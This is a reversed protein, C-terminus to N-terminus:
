LPTIQSRQPTSIVFAETLLSLCTDTIDSPNKGQSLEDIFDAVSQTKPRFSFIIRSLPICGYKIDREIAKLLLFIDERIYQTHKVKRSMFTGYISVSSSLLLIGIFKIMSQIGIIM